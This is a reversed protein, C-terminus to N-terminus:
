NYKDYDHYHEMKNSFEKYTSILERKSQINEIKEIFEQTIKELAEEIFQQKAYEYEESDKSVIFSKFELPANVIDVGNLHVNQLGIVKSGAVKNLISLSFRVGEKLDDNALKKSKDTGLKLFFLSGTSYEDLPIVEKYKTLWKSLKQVDTETFADNKETYYADRIVEDPQTPFNTILIKFLWPEETTLDVKLEGNQRSVSYDQLVPSINEVQKEILFKLEGNKWSFLLPGYNKDLLEDLGNEKGVLRHALKFGIGFKSSIIDSEFSEM